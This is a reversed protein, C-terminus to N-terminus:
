NWRSTMPREAGGMQHLTNHYVRAVLEIWCITANHAQFGIRGNLYDGVTFLKVAMDKKSSKAAISMKRPSKEPVLEEWSVNVQACPAPRTRANYFEIGLTMKEPLVVPLVRHNNSFGDNDPEYPVAERASLLPGQKISELDMLDQISSPRAMGPFSVKEEADGMEWRYTRSNNLSDTTIVQARGLPIQVARSKEKSSLTLLAIVKHNERELLVDLTSEYNFVTIHISLLQFAVKLGKYEPCYVKSAVYTVNLKSQTDALATSWTNEMSNFMLHDADCLLIASQWFLNPLLFISLRLPTSIPVHEKCDGIRWAFRPNDGHDIDPLRQYGSTGLAYAVYM